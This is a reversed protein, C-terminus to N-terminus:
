NGKEPRQHREFVAMPHRQASGALLPTILEPDMAESFYNGQGLQCFMDQLATLQEGTDIGEAIVDIGLSHALTAISRVIAASEGEIVLGSIFSRDIKVADFSFRHLYSLSAYGTGFDDIYLRVGLSRLRALIGRVSDAGDIIVSETVELRLVRPDLDTEKLIREVESVMDPDTFQRPSINVSIILPPSMPYQTQWNRTQRCAERLVWYGLPMMLGIEEAVPIFDFPFLLGLRPHRWRLLAELGILRGNTLDVIPQYHLRFEQRVMAARLEKELEARAVVHARMADDYVEYRGRGFTKARYMAADADRLIDEARGYGTSSLAIGISVPSSVNQGEVEVPLAMEELIREAVRTADGVDAIAELLIAFEDGGFRGVLDGPRVCSELKKSVYMLLQDGALHGFRDNVQKFNDLDVFFVAFLYDSRRNARALAYGLRELFLARNPLGTLPDYARRDTVDTQAGAIRYARGASDLVAFGRSMVWLYSGDKHRVRHEDEFRPTRGTTHAELKAKVRDLDDPHVRSFWEEPVDGVEDETYGLMSKWRPSFYVRDQKLMWDWLGDNAGRVALAYREESERLAQEAARRETVDELTGILGRAPGRRGEESAEGRVLVNRITGDPQQVRFEGEFPEGTAVRQDLLAKLAARDDSHVHDLFGRLTAGLSGSVLGLIGYVEDSVTLRDPEVEWEWSGLHAIREARALLLEKKRLTERARVRATVDRGIGFLGVVKGDREQRTITYEITISDGGATLIRREAKRPEGGKEVLDRCARLTEEREDAHLLAGLGRGRWEERPWGTIAEFAPNMWTLSGDPAMTFIIDPATDVLTRYREESDRLAEESRRRDSVDECVTILAIPQGNVDSVVDTILQAPFPTGDKRLRTGERKWGKVWRLSDAGGLPRDPGASLKAGDQDILEVARYGHMMALAPNVYLTRGGLDSIVIGVQMSEVAQQLERLSDTTKKREIAYRLSRDLLVPSLQTKDLYDTAGARMFELDIEIDGEGTLIIIPTTCGRALVERLLELGNRRGLRHDVLYVDHCAKAMEALGAEYTPVWDVEYRTRRAKSLLHRTLAYETESDDVLLVRITRPEM